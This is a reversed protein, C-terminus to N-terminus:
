LLLDVANEPGIADNIVEDDVAIGCRQISRTDPTSTRTSL